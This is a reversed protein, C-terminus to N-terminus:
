ILHPSSIDVTPALEGLLNMNGNEAKSTAMLANVSSYSQSSCLLKMDPMDLIQLLQGDEGGRIEITDLSFLAVYKDCFSAAIPATEWELPRLPAIPQGSSNVFCGYTDYVLLIRDPGTEIGTLFRNVTSSRAQLGFTDIFTPSFDPWSVVKPIYSIPNRIVQCDKGALFIDSGVISIDTTSDSIPIPECLRDLQRSARNYLYIHLRKRIFHKTTFALVPQSNIEGACTEFVPGDAPDSLYIPVEESITSRRSATLKAVPLHALTGGYLVIIDQMGPMSLVTKIGSFGRILSMRETSDKIGMYVGTTTGCVVYPINEHTLVCASVLSGQIDIEHAIDRPKFFVLKNTEVEIRRLGAEEQIRDIWKQANTQSRAGLEMVKVGNRKIIFRFSQPSEQRNEKRSLMSTLRVRTPLPDVALEADLLELPIPKHAIRRRRNDEDVPNTFVLYNDLLTVYLPLASPPDVQILSGEYKVTRNEQGLGLDAVGAILNDVDLSERFAVLAIRESQGQGKAQGRMVIRHLMKMVMDLMGSQLDMHDLETKKKVSGLQMELQGLRKNARQLFSDFDLKRVRADRTMASEPSVFQAYAPNQNLERKHRAIANDINSIYEVYAHQFGENSITDFLDDMISHTEPYDRRQTAFLAKLMVEHYGKIQEINMFVDKIFPEIVHSPLLGETRLPDRYATLWTDLDSIYMQEKAIIEFIEEQRALEHKSLRARVSEPVVAHWFRDDPHVRNEQFKKLANDRTLEEPTLRRALPDSPNVRIRPVASESAPHHAATAPGLHPLGHPPASQAHSALPQAPPRVPTLPPTPTHSYPHPQLYASRPSHAGYRSIPIELGGVTPQPFAPGNTAPTAPPSPLAYHYPHPQPFLTHDNNTNLQRRTPDDYPPRLHNM